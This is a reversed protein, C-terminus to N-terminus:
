PVVARANIRGASVELVQIKLGEPPTLVLAQALDSPSALADVDFEAIGTVYSRQTANAVEVTMARLRDRLAKLKWMQDVGGVTLTLRTVAPAGPAAPRQAWAQLMAPILRNLAKRGAAKLAEASGAVDEVGAVTANESASALSDGDDTRLARLTVAAQYPRINSDAIRRASAKAVAEGIIMIDAGFQQAAAAAGRTDGADKLLKQVKALNARALEQDIVRVRQAVLMETALAEIEMTPITALTQEDILLMVRPVVALVPTAPASPAVSSPAPVYVVSTRCGGALGGFAALAALFLLRAIM